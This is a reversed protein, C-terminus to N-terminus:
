GFRQVPEADQGHGADHEPVVMLVRDSGSQADRFESRVALGGALNASQPVPDPLLEISTRNLRFRAPGGGASSISRKRSTTTNCAHFCHCDFARSSSSASFNSSM